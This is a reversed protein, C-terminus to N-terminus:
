FEHKLIKSLFLESQRRYCTINEDIQSYDVPTFKIDSISDILRNEIGLSSMLTHARSNSKQSLCYFDKRFIISFSTAHFSNTVVCKSNAIYGLFESPSLESDYKIKQKRLPSLYAHLRIVSCNIQEAVKYAFQYGNKDNEVTYYVLYNTTQPYKIIKEYIEKEILITPDCVIYSNIEYKNALFENLDKERVSISNYVHIYKSIEDLVSSPLINIRGISAAYTVLMTRGHEFQGWYIKDLGECTEPNWIQDSGFLILDYYKPIDNPFHVINSFKMGNNLFTDFKKATRKKTLILLLSSLVYRIKKLIGKRMIFDHKHFLLRYKEISAPRYDIIEVDHGLSEIKKYLAFCQLVAGYNIARHFTLIGIKM